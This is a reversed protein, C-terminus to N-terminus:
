AQRRDLVDLVGLLSQAGQRAEALSEPSGQKRYDDLAKAVGSGVSDAWNLVDASPLRVLRKAVKDRVAYDPEIVGDAGKWFAKVYTWARM